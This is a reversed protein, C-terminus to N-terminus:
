CLREIFSELRLYMKELSQIGECKLYCVGVYFCTFIKYNPHFTNMLLRCPESCIELFFMWNILENMDHNM